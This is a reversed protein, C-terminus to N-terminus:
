ETSPTRKIMITTSQNMVILNCTKTIMLLICASCLVKKKQNYEILDYSYIKKREKKKISSVTTSRQITTQVYERARRRKKETINDTKHIIYVYVFTHSLSFYSDFYSITLQPHTHTDEILFYISM